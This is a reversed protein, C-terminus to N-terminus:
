TTAPFTTQPRQMSDLYWRYTSRLGEVLRTRPRWGMAKLRRSDALKRPAGDPKDPAFSFEGTYGVVEGMMEALKAISVEEGSGVNIQGSQNYHQLLFVLADALDDVHLFERLPNGTGWIEVKQARSVNADHIKRMLAPLVHGSQLDFNDHPGYLNAPQASVFDCGYQRRYADCLKIGAIKAIAYWENTPELPGSLLSDEAIPQPALRPYICTSGLLLLKALGLRWASHIINTEILLNDYLFEAPRSNNAMIGGVTAAAIVVVDAHANSMWEEVDGQRRLDVLERDVTIVECKESELRRCLASGVMGRHGAVWIRRGSLDFGAMSVM